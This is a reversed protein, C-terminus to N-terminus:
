RAKDTKDILEKMQNLVKTTENFIVNINVNPPFGLLQATELIGQKMKQAEKDDSLSIRTYLIRQKELFKLLREVHELREEKSMYPFKHSEGYIEMQMDNIEELEKKVIDSEFFSM